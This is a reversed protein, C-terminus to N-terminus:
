SREDESGETHVNRLEEVLKEAQEEDDTDMIVEGDLLVRHRLVCYTVYYVITLAVQVGGLEGRLERGM